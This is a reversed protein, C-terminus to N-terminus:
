LTKVLLYFGKQKRKKLNKLKKDHVKIKKFDPTTSNVKEPFSIVM